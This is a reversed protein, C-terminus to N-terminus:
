IQKNHNEVEYDKTNIFKTSAHGGDIIDVRSSDNLNM